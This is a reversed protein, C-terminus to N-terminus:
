LVAGNVTMYKKSYGAIIIIEGAVVVVDVVVIVGHRQRNGFVFGDYGAVVGVPLVAFKFSFNGKKKKEFTDSFDASACNGHNHRLRRLSPM